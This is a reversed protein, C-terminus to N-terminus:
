CIKMIIVLLWWKLHWGKQGYSQSRYLLDPFGKAQRGQGKSQHLREVQRGAKPSSSLKRAKGSKPNRITLKQDDVDGVNLKIVEGVRMGDGMFELM